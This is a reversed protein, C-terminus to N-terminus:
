DHMRSRCSLSVAFMELLQAKTVMLREFKQKEKVVNKALTELAPYDTSLVVRRFCSSDSRLRAARHSPHEGNM